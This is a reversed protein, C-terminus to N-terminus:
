ALFQKIVSIFERVHNTRGGDRVDVGNGGNVLMRVRNWQQNLCADIVKRDKFYHALIKASVELDLALDPTGILDLGLKQGYLAYNARGTIQILGKGAFRVGDGPQTNGLDKRGEYAAGSAYERIPKFARGVEIRITALAGAMILPNVGQNQIAQNCTPCTTLVEKFAKETADWCLGADNYNAQNLYFKLFKEKTFM